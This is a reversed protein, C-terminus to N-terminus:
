CTIMLYLFEQINKDTVFFDTVMFYGGFFCKNKNLDVGRLWLRAISVKSILRIENVIDFSM